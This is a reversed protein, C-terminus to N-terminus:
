DDDRYTEVHPGDAWVNVERITVSASGYRRLTARVVDFAEELSRVQAEGRMDSGLRAQLRYEVTRNSNPGPRVRRVMAISQDSKLM